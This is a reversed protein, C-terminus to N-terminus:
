GSLPRRCHANPKRQERYLGENMGALFFLLINVMSIIAVDHFMGNVVYNALLALFVLALYKAERSADRARWVRYADRGWLFLLGVLAGAGALGTETLIALFVNHQVFPRAKELPLESSRDALYEKCEVDYQGFGCGLLPRDVFMKWAVTALIPRLKVSEEMEAVSVTRDRKFSSIREWQTVALIAVVLAAGGLAVRRWQPPVAFGMVIVLGLGAGMWVSRTLTVYIGGALVLVIPALALRGWRGARAALLIAAALSTGLFIGNGIPNLLPGRGRGLFEPYEPSMIYSPFVLWTAEAWEAFATVALYVGFTTLCALVGIVARDSLRSQRAVWYLGLPM